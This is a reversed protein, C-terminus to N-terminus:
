HKDELLTFETENNEGPFDAMPKTKGVHGVTRMLVPFLYDLGVLM